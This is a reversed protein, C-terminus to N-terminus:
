PFRHQINEVACGTPALIMSHPILDLLHGIIQSKGTGPKGTIISINNKLSEKLFTTQIEDLKKELFLDLDFSLTQDKTKLTQLEFLFKIIYEEKLYFDTLIVHEGDSHPRLQDLIKRDTIQYKESITNWIDMHQLYETKFLKKLVQNVRHKDNPELKQYIKKYIEDLKEISLRLKFEKNAKYPNEIMLKIFKELFLEKDKELIKYLTNKQLNIYKMFLDFIEKNSLKYNTIKELYEDTYLEYSITSFDIINAKAKHNKMLLLVDLLQYYRQM